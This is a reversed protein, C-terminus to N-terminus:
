RFYISFSFLVCVAAVFCSSSPLSSKVCKDEAWFPVASNCLITCDAWMTSKESGFIHEHSMRQSSLHEEMLAWREARQPESQKAPSAGSAAAVAGHAWPTAVAPHAAAARGAAQPATIYTGQGSFLQAEKSYDHKHM